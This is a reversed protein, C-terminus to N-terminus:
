DESMRAMKILITTELYKLDIPKIVYDYAGLEITRKALEEDMVATVMIVAIDPDIKKIEKLTDFGGMRPMIIDLLVMRPKITRVKEIADAGNTATYVDYDRSRLFKQLLRVVEFEDDVVLIKKM